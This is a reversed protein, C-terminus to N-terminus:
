LMDVQLRPSIVQVHSILPCSCLITSPRHLLSFLSSLTVCKSEILHRLKLDVTRFITRYLYWFWLLGTKIAKKIQWLLITQSIKNLMALCHWMSFWSVLCCVLVVARKSRRTILLALFKVIPLLLYIFKTMPKDRVYFLSSPCKLPLLGEWNLSVKFEQVWLLLFTVTLTFVIDLITKKSFWCLWWVVLTSKIIKKCFFDSIFKLTLLM